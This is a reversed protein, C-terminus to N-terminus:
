DKSTLGKNRKKECQKCMVDDIGMFKKECYPCLIKESDEGDFISKKGDLENRCVMCLNEDAKIYNLGCRPCKKYKM